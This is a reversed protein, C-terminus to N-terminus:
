QVVELTIGSSDPSASTLIQVQQQFRFKSIHPDLSAVPIWVQQHSSGTNSIDLDPTIAPIQVQWHAVVVDVLSKNWFSSLLFSYQVQSSPSVLVSYALFTHMMSGTFLSGHISGVVSLFKINLGTSGASIESSSSLNGESGQSSTKAM